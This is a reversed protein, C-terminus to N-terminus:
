RFSFVNLVIASIEVKVEITATATIESKIKERPIGVM